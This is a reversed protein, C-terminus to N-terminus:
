NNKKLLHELLKCTTSKGNTGTIGVTKCGHKSLHFLEMDGIVPVNNAQAKTVVPHPQPHTLPIGPSLVVCALGSFEVVEPSIIEAKARKAAVRSDENDDWALVHVGAKVLAKVSSLGSKGLGVVYVPKKGIKKAFPTLDIM